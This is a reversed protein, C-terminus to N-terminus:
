EALLPFAKRYTWRLAQATKASEHLRSVAEVSKTRFYILAKTEFPLMLYPAVGVDDTEVGARRLAHHVKEVDPNILPKENSPAYGGIAAIERSLDRGHAIINRLSFIVEVDEFTDGLVTNFGSGFVMKYLNKLSAYQNDKDMDKRVIAVAANLIEQISGFGSYKEHITLSSVVTFIRNNVIDALEREIYAALSMIVSQGLGWAQRDTMEARRSWQWELLAFSNDLSNESYSQSSEISM